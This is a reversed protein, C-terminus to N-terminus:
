ASRRTPRIVQMWAPAAPAQLMYPDRLDTATHGEFLDQAWHRAAVPAAVSTGSMRVWTGSLVGAAVLGRAVAGEDALALADITRGGAASPQSSYTSRHDDDGRAAGVVRPLRGTALGNLSGAAGLELSGSAGDLRSQVPAELTWRPHDGQVWGRVHLLDVGDNRVELRWQGAPLGGRPGEVPGLSLQGHGSTAQLGEDRAQLALRGWLNPGRHLDCHSGMSVWGSRYPHVVRVKLEAPRAGTWWLEFFSDTPDHPQLRWILSASAKPELTGAFDYEPVDGTNGAALVVLLQPHRQMLADLARELASSGDHPGGLM